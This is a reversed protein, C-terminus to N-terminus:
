RRRSLTGSSKVGGGRFTYRLREGERRLTVEGVGKCNGGRGRDIVERFRYQDRPAGLYTWRGACDIGSYSVSNRASPGLSRIEAEVRFPPLGAQRLEGSWRGVLFSEGRPAGPVSPESESRGCAPLVALLALAVAPLTRTLSRRGLTM